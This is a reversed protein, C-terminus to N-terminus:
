GVNKRLKDFFRKAEDYDKGKIVHKLFELRATIKELQPLSYQNFLIESLLHDDESLLGKAIKRHRAFTTGPVATSEMCAAFVLSAAFPTTLSYAMMRDHEDFTYDFVHLGLRVYLKRFVEAGEADSGQLIVANEEKLASMDGFTPGFMPHTSVFRAGIKRYYEPIEGKISAIDALICDRGIHPAASEFAAITNQLSVANLLMQPRFMALEAPGSLTKAGEANRARASDEDYVAIENEASLVKAFWAGMKGAGIIAIRM